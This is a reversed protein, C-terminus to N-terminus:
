RTSLLIAEVRRNADRGEPTLNSAIPALYGMGESDVRAPDVDFQNVLRDRVASARQRSLDINTALAGTSDTHGVLAIRHEPHDQLYTALQKLSAHPGPLLTGAGSDFELDRLVVHGDRQLMQGLDATAEGTQATQAPADAPETTQSSVRITQIYAANGSRSVLISIADEASRTASLFRYNRIDVHMDPAPVVETEFRFDFGGCGRDECQFVLDYGAEELQQRMPAMLQLTTSSAGNIRFTRREVRGEFRRAPVAGDAFGGTPLDYSAFPSTRESLQRAAAPLTLDQAQGPVPLLAILACSALRCMTM